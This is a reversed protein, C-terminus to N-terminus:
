LPEPKLAESQEARGRSRTRPGKSGTSKGVSHERAADDDNLEPNAVAALTAGEPLLRPANFGPRRNQWRDQRRMRRLAADDSAEFAAESLRHLRLHRAAAGRRRWILVHICNVGIFFDELARGHM